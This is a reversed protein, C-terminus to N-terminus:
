PTWSRSSQGLWDSYRARGAIIKNFQERATEVQENLTPARPAEEAPEAIGMDILQQAEKKDVAVPISTQGADRALIFRNRGNTFGIQGEENIGIDALAWPEGFSRLREQRGLM